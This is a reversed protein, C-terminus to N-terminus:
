GVIVFNFTKDTDATNAHTIRFSYAALGSGSAANDANVESIYISGAGFETAASATTPAILIISDPTLDDPSVTVDTTTTNATLTFSGTNNTKGQMIGRIVRIISRFLSPHDNNYDPVNPFHKQSLSGM